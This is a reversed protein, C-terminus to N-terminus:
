LDVNCSCFRLIHVSIYSFSAFSNLNANRSVFLTKIQSLRFGIACCQDPDGFDGGPNLCFARGLFGDAVAVLTVLTAMPAALCPCVVLGVHGSIATFFISDIHSCPVLRSIYHTVGYHSVLFHISIRTVPALFSLSSFNFYTTLTFSLSHTCSPPWYVMTFTHLFTVQTTFSGPWALQGM